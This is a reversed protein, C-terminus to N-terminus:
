IKWGGASTNRKPIEKFPPDWKEKLDLPGTKIKETDM